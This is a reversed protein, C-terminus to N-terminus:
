WSAFIRLVRQATDLRRHCPRCMPAYRDSDLSYHRPKGNVVAVLEDPDGHQYAWEAAPRGCDACLYSSAHGRAAQVRTHAARYGVVRAPTDTAAATDCVAASEASDPTTM